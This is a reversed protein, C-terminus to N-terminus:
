KARACPMQACCPSSGSARTTSGKRILGPHLNAMDACISISGKYGPSLAGVEHEVGDGALALDCCYPVPEFVVFFFFLFFGINKTLTSRSIGGGNSGSNVSSYARTQIGGNEDDGDAM